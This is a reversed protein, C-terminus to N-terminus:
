LTPSQRRVTAGLSRCFTEARSAQLEDVCGFSLIMGQGGEIEEPPVVGLRDAPAGLGLLGQIALNGTASNRFFAVLRLPAPPSEVRGPRIQPLEM